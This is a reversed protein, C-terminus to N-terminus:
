RALMEAVAADRDLGAIVAEIEASIGPPVRAAIGRLRWRLHALTSPAVRACGAVRREHDLLYGSARGLYRLSFQRRTEVLGLAHLAEFARQLNFGYM